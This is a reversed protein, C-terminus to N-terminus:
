SLERERAGRGQGEVLRVRGQHRRHCRLPRRGVRPDGSRVRRHDGFEDVSAIGEIVDGDASIIDGAEVLVIDGTQLDHSQVTEYRDGSDFLLRKAIMAKQTTRLIDARAKGRQEALAEAFNGFFVTLWLWATIQAHMAAAHPEAELIEFILLITALSAIIEVTFIVPNRILSVPNFKGLAPLLSQRLVAPDFHQTGRNTGIM